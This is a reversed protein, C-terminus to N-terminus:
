GSRPTGTATAGDVFWRAGLVLLVLGGIALAINFCTRQWTRLEREAYEGAYQRHGRQEERRCRVILFLPLRHHGAFLLVGEWRAISDLALVGVLASVGIALPM